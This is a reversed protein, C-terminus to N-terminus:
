LLQILRPGPLCFQPAKELLQAIETIGVAFVTEFINKIGRLVFPGFGSVKPFQKFVKTGRAHTAGPNLQFSSATIQFLWGFRGGGGVASPLRKFIRFDKKGGMKPEHRPPIEFNYRELNREPM